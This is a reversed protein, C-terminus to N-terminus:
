KPATPKAKERLEKLKALTAEPNKAHAKECAKCCLFITQDEATVKIPVGREGLHVRQMLPCYEQAEALKRDEPDLKEMSQKIREQPNGMPPGGMPGGMKSGMPGLPPPAPPTKDGCGALFLLLALPLLLMLLLVSVKM